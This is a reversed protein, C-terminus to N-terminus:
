LDLLIEGQAEVARSCCLIIKRGRENKALVFDRHAVNGALYDKACVGCIGESCKVDIPIGNEALVETISKDAPIDFVQGSKALRVKFQDNVYDGGEPVAFYERHCHEEPWGKRKAMAFVAEMYHEPGCAYLQDTEQFHPLAEQLVLRNNEDSFFLQVRHAWPVKALDELFGARKRSTCSYFFRFDKGLQHLRHAMAVLPTVGIGGAFLFSRNACEQLPFHQIPRSIFVKRGKQFIRNMLKSGGRGEDERLVAIVYKSRDTPNGALSYQRFFEPAIVVDIHAGAEFPPLPSGDLASFEYRTIEPTEQIQKSVRVAIVPPLGQLPQTQPVLGTEGQALRKQHDQPDLLNKFVAIGKERDMPFPFPYPPPVLPAPYVALTQDEPQLDLSVNLSRQNTQKAPIYNGEPALQLDWWWKKVPNRQGNGVVDDLKALWRAAQPVKMALWRFPAEKFLGELNWPCTKMCRGCMSGALNTLRYRTCRESDSKWIEYGNFMVKPGATIAGAPCERACKNCHNCFNQLGFNIPKDPTFPMDTTVVGSKLRPGLYPNLIVEGIRSVEGLGSLLLLPPQLVEGDLVSHVRAAYGLRRIHEAVIGGLLSSRLYARMSQAGSIWDDGSCGDMTEHGQDILISIANKHYPELPNGAADHSYYAWEPCASLGVADAGLYYLAAKVNFANRTSDQANPSLTPAVDGDQLLILAGIVRRSCYGLSNKAIYYGNKAAEQMNKGMDGFLARAFMDTRKPVRPINEADIFTTPKEQTKIKEFPFAGQHFLRNQYPLRSFANKLTGKGLWWKWGHSRWKDRLTPNALPADPKLELPTTFAALGYRTGVYPNPFIFKGNTKQKHALGSAVALVNLNVDTSTVTHARAEFGMIRFYNSLVVAIEAARVAARQAQTGVIWDCGPESPSPDRTYEFLFVVAYHHHTMSTPPTRAAEKVDAIVVDIGSALTKPQATELQEVLADLDPNRISQPLRAEQPIRCIGVQSADFYYGAAKIHNSRETPNAPIESPRAAKAGDRIADLMTIFSAMSHALSEPHEKDLFCIPEIPPIDSLNPMDNCRALHELPYPGQHVPRNKYSFLRM